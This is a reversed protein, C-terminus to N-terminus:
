MFNSVNIAISARIYKSDARIVEKLITKIWEGGLLSDFKM